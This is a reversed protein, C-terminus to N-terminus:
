IGYGILFVTVLQHNRGFSEEAAVLNAFLGDHIINMGCLHMFEMPTRWGTSPGHRKGAKVKAPKYKPLGRQNV